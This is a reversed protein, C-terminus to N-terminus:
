TRRRPTAAGRIAAVQLRGLLARDLGVGPAAWATATFSREGDPSGSCYARRVAEEIRRRMDNALGAVYTGVPGQGALIPQWYDHFNAYDMRITLAAAGAFTGDAYALRCADGLEFELAARPSQSRAHSIYPEAIDLGSIKRTPWRRAMAFALSGTGTGVDLLPGSPPFRAFDLLQSALRKTWRGLFREYAAGDTAHYTSSAPM